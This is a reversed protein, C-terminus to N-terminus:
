KTALSDIFKKWLLPKPRSAKREPTVCEVNSLDSELGETDVITGNFCLEMAATPAYTVCKVTNPYEGGLPLYPGDGIKLNIKSAKVEELPLATGDERATPLTWCKEIPKYAPAAITLGTALTLTTALTLKRM